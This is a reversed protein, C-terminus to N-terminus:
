VRLLLRIIFCIFWHRAPWSAQDETREAPMGALNAEYAAKREPDAEMDQIRQNLNRADIFKPTAEYALQVMALEGPDLWILSCRECVDGMLNLVPVDLHQKHMRHSCQPCTLVRVTSGKFESSAETKLQAQSKRTSNSIFELNKLELLYGKCASCHLVKYGEYRVPDLHQYCAPCTNM